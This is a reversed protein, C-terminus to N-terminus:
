RFSKGHGRKSMQIRRSKRALNWFDASAGEQQWVVTIKPQDMRM